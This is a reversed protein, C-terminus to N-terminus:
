HKGNSKINETELKQILNGVVATLHVLWIPQDEWTGDLPYRPVTKLESHWRMALRALPTIIPFAQSKSCTKHLKCSPCIGSRMNQQYFPDTSDPNRYVFEVAKM